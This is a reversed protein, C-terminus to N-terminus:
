EAALAVTTADVKVAPGGSARRCSCRWASRRRWGSPPWPSRPTTPRRPSRWRHTAAWASPWSRVSCLSPSRVPCRARDALPDGHGPRRLAPPLDSLGAVLAPSSAMGFGAGQLAMVVGVVALPTDVTLLAFGTCSALMTACGIIIPTRPGIRDTLRGGVFIAVASVAAAPFFLLGVVLPTSGRLSELELPIFVLRGYQAVIALFMIAMALAFTRQRFLSVELMPHDTRLEHAVFAAVCLLGGFVSLLTAPSGWGWANGESLGLVALTLGGSGLVLGGVDFPRRSRHGVDPLLKLGGIVAVIGVPVNVLFLWHWSFDTALWGGLTPGIAPAVMAGMGWIALTRGHRERPYLGLVIAMGVPLLAGGGFGQLVRFFVLVGLTPALACAASAATFAALSLLFVRKRGFRDALWGTLPQAAAVALLYATVVWAIGEGAGLDVGIEHLAVNVITTDLLVMVTGTMVMALAAAPNTARRPTSPADTLTMPSERRASAPDSVEALRGALDFCRDVEADLDLDQQALWRDRATRLATISLAGLLRPLPDGPALDLRSTAHEAVIRALEDVHRLSHARLTVSSTILEIRAAEIDPRSVAAELLVHVAARISDLVPEDSPREALCARFRERRQRSTPSSCM